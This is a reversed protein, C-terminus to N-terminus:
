PMNKLYSYTTLDAIARYKMDSKDLKENRSLEINLATKQNLEIWSGRGPLGYRVKFKVMGDIPKKWEIDRIEPMTLLAVGGSAVVQSASGDPIDASARGQLVLSFDYLAFQLPFDSYNSIHFNYGITIKNGQVSLIVPVFQEPVLKYRLDSERAFRAITIAGVSAFAFVGFSVFIVQHWAIQDTMRSVVATVAASTAPFVFAVFQWAGPLEGFWKALRFIGGKGGSM